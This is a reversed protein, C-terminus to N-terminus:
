PAFFIHEFSDFVRPNAKLDTDLTISLDTQNIGLHTLDWALPGNHIVVCALSHLVKGDNESSKEEVM